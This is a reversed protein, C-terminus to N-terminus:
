LAQVASTPHASPSRSSLRRLLLEDDATLLDCLREEAANWLSTGGEGLRNGADILDLAVFLQRRSNEHLTTWLRSRVTQRLIAVAESGIAPAILALDSLCDTARLLWRMSASRLAPVTVGFRIATAAVFIAYHSDCHV